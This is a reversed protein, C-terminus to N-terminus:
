RCLRGALWDLSSSVMMQWQLATTEAPAAPPPATSGSSSRRGLCPCCCPCAVFITLFHWQCSHCGQQQGPACSRAAGLHQRAAQAPCDGPSNGFSHPLCIGEPHAHVSAAPPVPAAFACCMVIPPLRRAPCAPAHNLSQVGGTGGMAGVGAGVEDKEQRLQMIAADVHELAGVARGQAQRADALELKVAALQGKVTERQQRAAALEAQAAAAPQLQQRLEVIQQQQEQCRATAALLDALLRAPPSSDAAAVGPAACEGNAAAATPTRALAAELQDYLELIVGNKAQLSQAVKALSAHVEAQTYVVMEESSASESRAPCPKSRLLWGGLVALPWVMATQAWVPRADSSCLCNASTEVGCLEGLAPLPQGSLYEFFAVNPWRV